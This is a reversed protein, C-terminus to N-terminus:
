LLKCDVIIRICYGHLQPKNGSIIKPSTNSRHLTDKSNM